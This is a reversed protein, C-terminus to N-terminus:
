NMLCRVVWVFPATRTGVRSSRSTMPRCSLPLSVSSSDRCLHCSPRYSLSSETGFHPSLSVEDGWLKQLLRGSGAMDWIQVQASVNSIAVLRKAPARRTPTPLPTYSALGTVGVLGGRLTQM